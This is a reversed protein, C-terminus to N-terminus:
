CIPIIALLELSILLSVISIMDPVYSVSKPIYALFLTFSKLKCIHGVIYPVQQKAIPTAESKCLSVYIIHTMELSPNELALDTQFFLAADRPFSASLQHQWSGLM